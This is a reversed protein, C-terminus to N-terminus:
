IIKLVKEQKRKSNRRNDNRKGRRPVNIRINKKFYVVIVYGCYFVKLMEHISYPLIKSIFIKCM